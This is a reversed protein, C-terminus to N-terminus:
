VRDYRTIGEQLRTFHISLKFLLLYHGFQSLSFIRSKLCSTYFTENNKSNTVKDFHVFGEYGLGSNAPLYFYSTYHQKRIRDTVSGAFNRDKKIELLKEYKGLDFIPAYVMNLPAPRTNELTIDCTNSLIMGPANKKKGGDDYFDFINKSLADGQLLSEKYSEDVFGYYPPNLPNDTFQKLHEILKQQDLESLYQPLYIQLNDVTIM